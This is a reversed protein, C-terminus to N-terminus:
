KDESLIWVNRYRVPNGHDQLLIPGAHLENQDIGGPTPGPIELEDHVLLGNHWLTLRANGTKGRSDTIRPARFRIDFTQWRGPARSAAASPAALNYIGGCDGPRLDQPARGHSDFVQVEYRGHLYVGSNAGEPVNFEVHMLFDGFGEESILDGTGPVIEVAGKARKWAFPKGDKHKWGDTTDGALLLKAGEPMPTTGDPGDIAWRIAGLVHKQYREDEWLEPRHGLGSYFVRGEGWNRWWAIPNREYKGRTSDVTDMDLSLVVNLPPEGKFWKFQYIEDHVQFSEGLHHVAPHRPDDVKVGVEQHWPHGDFAGGIMEMYEPFEYWTDTACHLGVFAGGSRIWEMLAARNEAPIPLEGTTYFVVADYQELNKASIMRCDQTPIVRFDKGAASQLMMEAHAFKAEAPRKVVGHTFGASHTLFLVRPEEGAAESSEQMGPIKELTYYADAHLLSSGGANKVGKAHLEHVYGARLPEVKLAVTRPGTVEATVELTLRDDEPAGYAAHYEYTFSSLDYSAETGRRRRTWTRPSSWSSAGRGPACRGSRLPSPVRTSSTSCGM